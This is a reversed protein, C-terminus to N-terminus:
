VSYCVRLHDIAYFQKIQIGFSMLHLANSALNNLMSEVTAPKRKPPSIISDRPLNKIEELLDFFVITFSFWGLNYENFRM